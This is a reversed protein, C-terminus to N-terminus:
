LLEWRVGVSRMEAMILGGQICGLLGKILDM